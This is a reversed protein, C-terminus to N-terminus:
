LLKFTFGGSKNFTSMFKDVYSTVYTIEGKSLEYELEFKLADSIRTHRVGLLELNCSNTVALSFTGRGTDYVVSYLVDDMVRLPHAAYVARVRALLNDYDLEINRLLVDYQGNGYAFVIRGIIVGTDTNRVDCFGIRTDNLLRGFDKILQATM